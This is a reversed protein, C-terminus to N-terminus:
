KRGFSGFSRQLDEETRDRRKETGGRSEEQKGIQKKVKSPGGTSKRNELTKKGKQLTAFFYFFIWGGIM